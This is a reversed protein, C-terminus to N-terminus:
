PKVALSPPIKLLTGAPIPSNADMGNYTGNHNQRENWTSGNNFNNGRITVGSPNDCVTYYNKSQYDFKSYCGASAQGAVLAAILGIVWFAAKM